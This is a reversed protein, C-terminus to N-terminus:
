LLDVRLFCCRAGGNYGNLVPYIEVGGKLADIDAQEWDSGDKPNKEWDTYTELWATSLNRATGYYTGGDVVLYPRAAYIVTKQFPNFTEFQECKIVARVKTSIDPLTTTTLDCTAYASGNSKTVYKAISEDALVADATAGGVVTFTCSDTGNPTLSAIPTAAYRGVGEVTGTCSLTESLIGLPDSVSVSLNEETGDLDCLETINVRHIMEGGWRRDPFIKAVTGNVTLTLTVRLDPYDTETEDDASLSFYVRATDRNTWAVPTWSQVFNTGNGFDTTTEESGQKAGMQMESVESSPSEDLFANQLEADVGGFKVKKRGSGKPTIVEYVQMIKREGSPTEIDCWDSPRCMVEDMELTVSEDSLIELWANQALQDLVGFPPLAAEGFNISKAFWAGRKSFDALVCREGEPWDGDRGVGIVASIPPDMPDAYKYDIYDGYRIKLAGYNRSGRGPPAYPGDIYTYDAGNRLTCYMKHSNLFQELLPWYPTYALELASYLFEDGYDLNGARIYTDFANDIYIPGLTDGVGTGRVKLYGPARYIQYDDDEIESLSPVLTCLHGAFYVDRTGAISNSGFDPYTIIGTAEDVSATSLGPLVLSNMSWIMGAMYTMPDSATAVSGDLLTDGVQVPPDSSLVYTLPLGTYSSSVPMVGYCIKPSYRTEAIAILGVARWETVGRSGGIPYIVGRFRTVDNITYKIIANKYLPSRRDASFELENNIEIARREKLEASVIDVEFEDDGSILFLREDGSM